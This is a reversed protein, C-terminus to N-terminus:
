YVNGDQYDQALELRQPEEKMFYLLLRDLKQPSLHASSTKWKYLTSPAICTAEGIEKISRGKMDLATTLLAETEAFTNYERM